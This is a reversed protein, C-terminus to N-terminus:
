RGIRRRKKGLVWFLGIAAAAGAGVGLAARAISPGGEDPLELDDPEPPAPGGHAGFPPPYVGIELGPSTAARKGVLATVRPFLAKCGHTVPRGFDDLQCARRVLYLVGRSSPYFWGSGTKQLLDELPPGPIETMALLLASEDGTDWLTGESTRAKTVHTVLGKVELSTEEDSMNLCVCSGSSSACAGGTQVGACAAPDGQEIDARSGPAGLAHYSM